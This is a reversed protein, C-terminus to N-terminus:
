LLELKPDRRIRNQVVGSAGCPWVPGGNQIKSALGERFIAATISARRVHQQLAFPCCKMAINPPAAALGWDKKSSIGESNQM